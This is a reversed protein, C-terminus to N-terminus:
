NFNLCGCITLPLQITRYPYKLFLDAQIYSLASFHLRLKAVHLTPEKWVQLSWSLSFGTSPLHQGLVIVCGQLAIKLQVSYESYRFPRFVCPSTRQHCYQSFYKPLIPLTKQWMQWRPDPDSGSDKLLWCDYHSHGFKSRKLCTLFYGKKKRGERGKM